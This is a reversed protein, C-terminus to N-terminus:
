KSTESPLYMYRQVRSGVAEELEIIAKTPDGVFQTDWNRKYVLQPLM